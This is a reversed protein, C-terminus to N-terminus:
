FTSIRRWIRTHEQHLGRARISLEKEVEELAVQREAMNRRAAKWQNNYGQFKEFSKVKSDYDGAKLGNMLETGQPREGVLMRDNDIESRYAAALAELDPTSLGKHPRVALEQDLGANRHYNYYGGGGLLLVLVFLALFFKGM